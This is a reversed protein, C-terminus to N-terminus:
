TRDRLGILDDVAPVLSLTALVVAIPVTSVYGIHKFGLAGVIGGVLFAGILTGLVRMRDRDAVVHGPLEPQRNWYLLKGLEIGLDTVIGTMHTTRIGANSIKTVTANQLGMIFCLLLATFPVLLARFHDLWPGLLGFVLILAAEVLLPLAYESQLQRRRAFNVIMACCTAGALFALVSAFAELAIAYESLVVSDAVLSVAGTVHSTYRQVALFGGANLAGAAFALAFGLHRNSRVSRHRGTLFRAYHVPM